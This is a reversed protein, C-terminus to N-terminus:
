RNSYVKRHIFPAVQGPAVRAPGSHGARASGVVPYVGPGDAAVVAYGDKTSARFPPVPDRSAVAVALVRAGGGGAGARLAPDMLPVTEAPLPGAIQALVLARAEPVPMM